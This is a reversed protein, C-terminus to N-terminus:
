DFPATSLGADQAFDGVVLGADNIAFGRSISPDGAGGGIDQMGGGGTWLFTHLVSPGRVTESSGVVQGGGNIGRANSTGYGTNFSRPCFLARLSSLNGNQWLLAETIQPFPPGFQNIGGYGAVQGADNIGTAYSQTGGPLTGLDRMMGARYLF